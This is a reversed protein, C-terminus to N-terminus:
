DFHM